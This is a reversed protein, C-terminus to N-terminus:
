EKAIEPVEYYTIRRTKYANDPTIIEKVWNNYQTGDFQYIYEQTKIMAGMKTTTQSLVGDEDYTYTIEKEQNWKQTSGDMSFDKSSLLKDSTFVEETKANPEGHLYNVTVIKKNLSDLESSHVSKVMDDNRTTIVTTEKEGITHEIINEDTGNTDTHVMKILKEEEDYFYVNKELLEKTYSVIKETVKRNDTTDIEYFNALSTGRDFRNDRYNEVRKEKLEGNKYKYFTTEYNTDNYRTVAKTLRGDEDFHYEEKGYDTIVRCSKVNGKLDFDEIEFIKIEQSHLISPIAMVLLLFIFYNKKIM